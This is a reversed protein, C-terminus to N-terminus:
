PNMTAWSAPHDQARDSWEGDLPRLHLTCLSLYCSLYYHGLKICNLIFDWASIQNQYSIGFYRCDYHPPQSRPYTMPALLLVLFSKINLTRWLGLLALARPLLVGKPTVTIISRTLTIEPYSCLPSSLHISSTIATSGFLVHHFSPLM